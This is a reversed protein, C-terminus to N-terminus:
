ISFFPKILDYTEDTVLEDESKEAKASLISDIQQNSKSLKSLFSLSGIASLNM